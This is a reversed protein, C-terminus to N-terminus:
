SINHVSYSFMCAMFVLILFVIQKVSSKNLSRRVFVCGCAFVLGYILNVHTRPPLKTASSAGDFHILWQTHTYAHALRAIPMGTMNTKSSTHGCESISLNMDSYVQNTRVTLHAPKPLDNGFLVDM